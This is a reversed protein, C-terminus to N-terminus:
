YLLGFMWLPIKVDVGYEIDDIASYANEGNTLQKNSKNGGGIEFLYNNDILFDGTEPLQIM